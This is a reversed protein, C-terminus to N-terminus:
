FGGRSKWAARFPRHRTMISQRGKNAISITREVAKEAQSELVAARTENEGIFMACFAATKYALYTRSGIVNIPSNEDVAYPIGQYLYKLVVEMDISCINFRVMGREWVWYQLSNTIPRVETFELRPLKRYAGYEAHEMGLPLDNLNKPREEIEQIEILDAPYRPFLETGDARTSPLALGAKYEPSVLFNWGAPIVIPVLSQHYSTLNTFPSHADSLLDSFEEIAMNLYPLQVAYTYDTKNPDNLLNAVRDMIQGALVLTTSM